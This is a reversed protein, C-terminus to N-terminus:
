VTTKILNVVVANGDCLLHLAIVEWDVILCKGSLIIPIFYM